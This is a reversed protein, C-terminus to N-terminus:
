GRVSLWTGVFAGLVAPILYIRDKVYSCTVFAGVLVILASYSAAPLASGDSAARIWGTWLSDTLAVALFVAVGRKM